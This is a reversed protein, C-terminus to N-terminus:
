SKNYRTVLQFQADSILYKNIDDRLILELADDKISNIKLSILSDQVDIIEIELNKYIPNQYINKSLMEEFLDIQESFSLDFFSENASLLLDNALSMKPRLRTYIQEGLALVQYLEQSYYSFAPKSVDDRCYYDFEKANIRDFTELSREELLCFLLDILGLFETKDSLSYQINTVIEEDKKVLNFAVKMTLKFWALDLELKYEGQPSNVLKLPKQSHNFIKQSNYQM